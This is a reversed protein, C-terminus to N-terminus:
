GRNIYEVSVRYIYGHKRNEKLTDFKSRDMRIGVHGSPGPDFVCVNSLDDKLVDKARRWDAQSSIDDSKDGTLASGAPKKGTRKTKRQLAKKGSEKKEKQDAEVEENTKIRYYQMSVDVGDTSLEGGFLWEHADQRRKVKINFLAMWCCEQYLLKAREWEKEAQKFEENSSLYEEKRKKRDMSFATEEPRMKYKHIKGTTIARFQKESAIKNREIQCMMEYEEDTQEQLMREDIEKEIAMKREKAESLIIQMPTIKQEIDKDEEALFKALSTIADNPISVHCARKKALPLISPVVIKRGWPIKNNGNQHDRQAVCLNSERLKPVIHERLYKVFLDKKSEFESLSSPLQLQAATREIWMTQHQDLVLEDKLMSNETQYLIRESLRRLIQSRYKGDMSVRQSCRIGIDRCVSSTDSGSCQRFIDLAHKMFLVFKKKSLDGMEREIDNALQQGVCVNVFKVVQAGRQRSRVRNYEIVEGMVFYVFQIMKSNDKRGTEDPFKERIPDIVHCAIERIEEQTLDSLRKYGEKVKELPQDDWICKAIASVLSRFNDAYTDGFYEAIRVKIVKGLNHYANTQLIIGLNQEKTKAAAKLCARRWIMHGPLDWIGFPEDADLHHDGRRLPANEEYERLSDYLPTDIHHLGGGYRLDKIADFIKYWFGNFDMPGLDIANELCRYVHYHAAQTAEFSIHGLMTATDFLLNKLRPSRAVGRWQGKTERNHNQYGGLSGPKIVKVVLNEYQTQKGSPKRYLGLKPSTDQVYAQM